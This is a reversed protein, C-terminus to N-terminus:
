LLWSGAALMFTLFLVVYWAYTQGDGTYIHRLFDGFESVSRGIWDIWARISKSLVPYVAREFPQYFNIAYTLNENETPVEGSTHIDKTTVYRTRRMRYLSLITFGTLFVTGIVSIMALLNIRNGWENFLMSMSWMDHYIPFGLYTLASSIPALVIGPFIGTIFTVAALALMPLQMTLFPVEKVHEFEKEEQGLFISFILRYVYLFSATSSFFAVIVLFYHDSQILSEYLLWKGVFGGLPPINALSIIAMLVTLFSVPMRRILGRLENLDTLGTRFYVAGVAFFLMAKFVGHLLAIFLAAMMSLPTGLALGIVIYGLQAVSSYALLRKADTQQIARLTALASTIGGAWALLERVPLSFPSQLFIQYLVMGMGFIGMKSLAGSFLATFPAPSEAYADPAWGHMPMLGAKVSFGFLLTGALMLQMLPNQLVFSRAVDEILLSGSMNFLIVISFLIAYAGAASYLFYKVGAKTANGGKHITLLFSSWTMIEWFIFLSLLDLSFLIGYMAAITILLNLYYMAPREEKAMYTFSFLVTPVALLAVIGAFFLSYPTKGLTLIFGGMEISFTEDGLWFLLAASVSVTLLAVANRLFRHAFHLLYALFAGGFSVALFFPIGTIDM